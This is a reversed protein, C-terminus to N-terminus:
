PRNRQHFHNYTKEGNEEGQTKEGKVGGTERRVVNM